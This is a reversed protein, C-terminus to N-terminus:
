QDKTRMVRLISSLSRLTDLLPAQSKAERASTEAGMERGGGGEMNSCGQAERYGMSEQGRRQGQQRRPKREGQVNLELM